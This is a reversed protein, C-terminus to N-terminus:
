KALKNKVKVHIKECLNNIFKFTMPWVVVAFTIILFYRIAGGLNKGFLFALPASLGSKIALILLFGFLVKIIQALISGKTEFKVYKKEIFYSVLLALSSGILKASNYIGNEINKVDPSEPYVDPFPIGKMYIYCVVGLVAMLSFIIAMFLNNDEFKKMLPYLGIVLAGGILLSVGVDLPTHVGLYMRSFAVLLLIVVCTIKLWRKKAFMAVSGFLGTSNQTHGSPFSYGTAQERASEVITFNEDLVWPRPIRFLVKLFQNILMGFFGVTILYYGDKKNYCWFILVALVIVVTEEGLMTILSMIVNLVPNRVSELLYLFKM